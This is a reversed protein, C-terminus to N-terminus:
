TRLGVYKTENSFEQIMGLKEGLSSAQSTLKVFRSVYKSCVVIQIPRVLYLEYRTGSFQRLYYKSFTIQLEAKDATLM